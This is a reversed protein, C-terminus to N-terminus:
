DKIKFLSPFIDTSISYFNNIHKEDEVGRGVLEVCKSRKVIGTIIYDRTEGNFLKQSVKDYLNINNTTVQEM